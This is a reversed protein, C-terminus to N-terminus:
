ESSGLPSGVQQKVDIAWQNYLNTLREVIEPYQDAYNKDEPHKDDLNALYPSEMKEEKQM